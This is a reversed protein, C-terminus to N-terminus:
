QYSGGRTVGILMYSNDPGVVYEGVIQLDDPFEGAVVLGQLKKEAFARRTETFDPGRVVQGDENEYLTPYLPMIKQEKTGV